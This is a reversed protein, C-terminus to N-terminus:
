NHGTQGKILTCALMCYQGDKASVNLIKSPFAHEATSKILYMKQQRGFSLYQIILLEFLLHKCNKYILCGFNLTTEEIVGVQIANAFSLTFIIFLCFYFCFLLTENEGGQPSLLYKYTIVLVIHWVWFQCRFNGLQTMPIVTKSRGLERSQLYPGLPLGQATFEPQVDGWKILKVIFELRVLFVFKILTPLFKRLFNVGGNM